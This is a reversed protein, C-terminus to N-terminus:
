VLISSGAALQLSDEVALIETEHPHARWGRLLSRAIRERNRNL